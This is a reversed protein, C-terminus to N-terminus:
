AELENVVEADIVDLGGGPQLAGVGQTRLLEAAAEKVSLVVGVELTENREISIHRVDRWTNGKRNLLWMQQARFNGKVAQQYLSEEITEDLMEEATAMLEAFEQDRMLRRFKAPSWGVEVAAHLPRVGSRILEFFDEHQKAERASLEQKM